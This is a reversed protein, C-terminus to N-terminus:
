SMGYTVPDYNNWDPYKAVMHDAWSEGARSSFNGHLLKANPYKRHFELALHEAVGERRHKESTYIFGVLFESRDGSLDTLELRGRASGLHGWTHKVPVILQLDTYNGDMPSWSFEANEPLPQLEDGGGATESFRGEADRPHLHESFDKEGSSAWEIDEPRWIFREITSM